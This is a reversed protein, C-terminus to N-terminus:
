NKIESYFHKIKGTKPRSIFEVYFIKFRLGPELYRDMENQIQNMIKKNLKSNSVIDYYFLDLKIQRIIFEKVVGSKSELIARSIYYFTLGPSIKGSPLIINDNERGLLKKLIRNNHKSRESSIIGIDGVNYRIFPM